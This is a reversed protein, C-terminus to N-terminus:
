IENKKVGQKISKIKDKFHSILEEISTINEELSDIDNLLGIQQYIKLREQILDSSLTIGPIKIGNECAEIILGKRFIETPSLNNKKIVEEFTKSISVSSVVTNRNQNEQTM